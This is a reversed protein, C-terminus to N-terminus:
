NLMLILSRQFSICLYMYMYTHLTIYPLTIYHLTFTIYIYNLTIYIYHLTIYPIYTAHIYIHININNNNNIM